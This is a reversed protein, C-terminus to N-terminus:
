ETACPSWTRRFLEFTASLQECVIGPEIPPGGPQGLDSFSYAHVIAWHDVVLTVARDGLPVGMRRAMVAMTAGHAVDRRLALSSARFSSAGNIIRILVAM